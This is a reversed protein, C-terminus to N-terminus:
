KTRHSAKLRSFVERMFIQPFAWADYAYRGTLRKPEQYIRYAWELALMQVWDPARKKEGALFDITAGVCFAVGVKLQNQFKHVWIEQKPAGLGIVLVDPHTANIQAMIQECAQPDNEFGFDPSLTGVVKVHTGWREAILEAASDAVGPGAGFLFVTIVQRREVAGDFVAPVLDSGPVTEPLSRGLIWSALVLPKGDAVVMAADKYAAAFAQDKELKVVHDINPTVVYDCAFQKRNVLAYVRDVAGRMDVADFEIDFLHAKNM